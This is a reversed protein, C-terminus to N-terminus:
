PSLDGGRLLIIHNNLQKRCTLLIGVKAYLKTLLLQLSQWTRNNFKIGDYLHQGECSMSITCFCYDVKFEFRIILVM